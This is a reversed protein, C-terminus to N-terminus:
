NVVIKKDHRYHQRVWNDNVYSSGRQVFRYPTALPKYTTGLFGDFGKFMMNCFIIAADYGRYANRTPLVGYDNIFRADFLRISEDIRNAYYSVAFVVDNNYFIDHDLNNMRSWKNNGYTLYNGYRLGRGRISAKTSSLTTLIRDVDTEDAAAVVFTKESPTRMLEEINVLAGNSGDSNRRYFFSGRNFNFNLQTIRANSAMARVENVYASDNRSAYIIVVERSGDFLDAVKDNKANFLAPMNFLVPSNHDVYQLPSIVPINAEEAYELVLSFEQSYVPGIILDTQLGGSLILQMFNDGRGKSDIVNLEISRGEAKLDEMALLVGRYFDVINDKAAGDVTFPLFLTVQLMANADVSAFVSTTSDQSLNNSFIDIETNIESAEDSYDSDQKITAEEAHKDRSEQKNEGSYMKGNNKERSSSTGNNGSQASKEKTTKQKKVILTMGAKIDTYDKLGNVKLLEEETMGYTRSISYLTEGPKVKHTTYGDPIKEDRSKSASKNSSSNKNGTINSDLKPIYLTSGLKIDSGELANVEMIVDQGVGYAVSLSYLTDGEAVQHVYYTKGQYKMTVKSPETAMAVTVLMLAIAVMLLRLRKM